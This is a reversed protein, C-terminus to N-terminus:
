STDVSKRTPARRPLRPLPTRAASVRLERPATTAAVRGEAGADGTVWPHRPDRSSVRSSTSTCRTSPPPMSRSSRSEASIRCSTSTSPAAITPSPRSRRVQQRWSLWREILGYSPSPGRRAGAISAVTWRSWSNRRPQGPRQLVQPPPGGSSAQRTTATPCRGLQKVLPGGCGWPLGMALALLGDRAAGASSPLRSRSGSPCCWSPTPRCPPIRM